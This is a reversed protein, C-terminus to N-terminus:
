INPPPSFPLIPSNAMFCEIFRMAFLIFFAFFFRLYFPSHSLFRYNTLIRNRRGVEAFNLLVRSSRRSRCDLSLQSAPVFTRAEKKTIELNRWPKSSSKQFILLLNWLKVPEQIPLDLLRPM